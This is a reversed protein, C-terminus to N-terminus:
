RERLARERAKNVPKLLYELITKRGTLVDATATMGPIVALTKGRFAIANAHTRVHILFYPDGQQPQMSDGSVYEVRGELGGYISYDYAALKVVAPHGVSVFAIDSPKIKAEILLSEEVPVLEALPSGPQVVGGPTKNLILKIIGKAPARVETRSVRDELAPLTEDLKALQSKAEALEAQAASRFALETDSLRRKAEEIAAQVRPIALRAADLDTRMRASERELRLLEVESVVGKSVLPAIMAIEKKLFDLGEGLREVRSRM